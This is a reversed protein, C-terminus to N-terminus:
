GIKNCDPKRTPEINIVPETENITHITNDLLYGYPASIEQYYITQTSDIDNLIIKGSADTRAIKNYGDDTWIRFTAGSVARGTEDTKTIEIETPNEPPEVPEVPTEGASNDWNITLNIYHTPDVTIDPQGLPQYGSNAPIWVITSLKYAVNGINESTWTGNVNIPAVLFFNDGGNLTARDTYVAGKTINHLQVGSQLAFSISYRSDGILSITDTAQEYDNIKIGNLTPNSFSFKLIPLPQSNVFNIFPNAVKHANGNYFYDLALSTMVIGMNASTFGAWQADGKWGYYLCKAVNENDYVSATIGTNTPPTKKSHAMCFAQKGNVAFNGVKSGVM